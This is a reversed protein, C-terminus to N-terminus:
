NGLSTELETFGKVVQEWCARAFSNADPFNNPEIADHTIIGVKKGPTIVGRPNLVGRTGFMSIPIVPVKNEWALQLLTIKLEKYDKPLGNRSRTGEPYYQVAFNDEVLRKRAQVFVKKRSNRKGRSVVMAGSAWAMIGLLPLYLVEKKMIPPVQYQSLMLPIDIFSQHNAIYLGKYPYSRLEPRRRDSEYLTAWCGYKLTFRSFFRWFPGVFRVRWKVPLPIVVLAVPTVSLFFVLPITISAWAQNLIKVVRHQM